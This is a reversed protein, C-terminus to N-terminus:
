RITVATARAMPGFMLSAVGPVQDPKLGMGPAIMSAIVSRDQRTGSYWVRPATGLMPAARFKGHSGHIGAKTFAGQGPGPGPNAQSYPPNPLTHCAPGTDLGNRPKDATTYGTEQNPILELNIHLTYGRFAQTARPIWNDLGRLLCPFEPSYRALLDTFPVSVKGLAVLNDGNADLFFRSTDSLATVQTFLAKLNAREAVVTQSTVSFNGLTRGLDPLVSSYEDSVKGLKRLDGILGPVQPNLRTLYGDLRVLNAGLRNGRGQLATSLASLTTSLEKPKLAKLLPYIDALVKEVEPKLVTEQIQQGAVIATPSPHAPLELSVYKEGFLTKPLILATVNGPIEGVKSPDIALHLIASNGVVDASRVEGVIVGRIKVDARPNLQLGINSTKVTVPVYDVFKQSFIAYTLWVFFLLMALFIVGLVRGNLATKLFVGRNTTAM